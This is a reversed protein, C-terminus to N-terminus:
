NWTSNFAEEEAGRFRYICQKIDGVVFLKYDLYEAIKLLSEIQSDDTDQFEDVFMFQQANKDRNLERIRKESEPSSIFRSLMSMMTSLHVKNAEQLEKLYEREVQPIVAALLEHLAM